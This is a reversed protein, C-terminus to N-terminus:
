RRTRLRWRTLWSPACCASTSGTPEELSANMFVRKSMRLHVTATFRKLLMTKRAQCTLDSTPRLSTRSFNACSSLLSPRIRLACSVLCVLVHRSLVMIHALESRSLWEELSIEPAVNQTAAMMMELNSRPDIPLTPPLRKGFLSLKRLGHPSSSSGRGVCGSSMVCHRSGPTVTGAAVKVADTIPKTNTLIGERDSLFPSGPNLSDRLGQCPSADTQPRHHLIRLAFTAPM